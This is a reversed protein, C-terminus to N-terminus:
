TRERLTESTQRLSAAARRLDDSGFGAAVGRLEAAVDVLGAAANSSNRAHYDDIHRQLHRRVGARDGDPIEAQSLRDIGAQCGNLVAAGPNGDTVQHHPFKWDAKADPYGDGDPDNGDKDYWAYMGFGRAKTVPSDLKAEEGPGDWPEDIVDTSHPPVVGGAPENKEDDPPADAAFVDLVGAAASTGVRARSPAHALRAVTSDFTDARDAMGLKVAQAASFVLGQGFNRHVNAVNTNRGKAVDAEFMQGFEDVQGQIEARAADSLPEYPYGNAKNEGFTIMSTTVGMGDLMRSVDQHVAIVGISGVQGSPTVVLEDAQAAIYYAASAALTDAIAVIPKGNGRANRIMAATEPVLGVQGGPSDIDLLIASVAPDALAAQFAQQFSTLGVGGSIESFLSARPMIVGILSLVAVNGGSGAFTQYAPRAAQAPAAASLRQDIEDRTLRGGEARFALLEVIVELKAPLIAWPTEAVAQMIRRYKLEDRDAM